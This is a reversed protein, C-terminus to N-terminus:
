RGNRECYFYNREITGPRFLIRLWQRLTVM